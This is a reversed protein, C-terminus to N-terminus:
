SGIIGRLALVFTVLAVIMLFAFGFNRTIRYTGRVSPLRVARGMMRATFDQMREAFRFWLFALLAFVLSAVLTIYAGTLSSVQTSAPGISM